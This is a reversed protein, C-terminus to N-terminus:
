AARELVTSNVCPFRSHPLSFMVVHSQSTKLQGQTNIDDIKGNTESGGHRDITLAIAGAPKSEDVLETAAIVGVGPM